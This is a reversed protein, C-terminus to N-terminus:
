EPLLQFPAGCAIEGERLVRAYVRSWGPHNTQGIRGFRGDLFYPRLNHCPNAYGTVEAEVEGARFRAGVAMSEWPIGRVTLNEGTTGPAVDHGEARLADLLEASYLCVARQPGGHHERDRQRDGVLGDVTVQAREVPQKPVGGASVNVSVVM